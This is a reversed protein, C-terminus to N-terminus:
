ETKQPLSRKRKELWEEILNLTKLTGYKKVFDTFDKCKYKKPILLVKIEPFKKRIKQSARIGPLDNDYLLYIDSFRQKLKILQADSVFLTESNPAIATLGFEFMSMCDKLSKTIILIDGGKPLQRSGQIITSGWNSLFRYNRKTPMYIRWLENGFSDKGGYYGYMPSSDTSTAHYSGNLFVHKISYVKFKNLTTISIGFSDWWKLEKETFEKIEVTIQARETEKLINGTPEMRPPHVELTKSKIYGFDNAIINMATHYSCNFIYMVCGVFDFTPGAFDKYKLIGNSTKYFSCTPNNDKRIISPSCFNGKKVPIGLYYEFFTEQSHKSLLLEKTIKPAVEITYM